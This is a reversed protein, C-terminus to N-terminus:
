GAPTSVPTAAPATSPLAPHLTDKRARAYDLEAAAVTTLRKALYSAEKGPDSTEAFIKCADCGEVTGKLARARFQQNKHSYWIEKFPREFINGISGRDQLNLCPYCEGEPSLFVWSQLAAACPGHHCPDVLNRETFPEVREPLDEPVHIRIGVRQGEERLEALLQNFEAPNDMLTWDRMEWSEILLHGYALVNAGLEKALRVFPVAEQKNQKMLTFNLGLQPLGRGADHRVRRFTELNNLIQDWKAGRRIDEFTERTAADLSIGVHDLGGEVLIKSREEDLHTGNTQIRIFPVGAKKAAHLAQPFTKLYLPEGTCSLSVWKLYPFVDRELVEVQSRSFKAPEPTLVHRFCQKCDIDCSSSLDLTMYIHRQNRFFGSKIPIM